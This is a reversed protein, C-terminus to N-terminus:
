NLWNPKMKGKLYYDFWEKTRRSVDIRNKTENISHGENKYLLLQVDKGLRKMANFMYLSQQWNIVYDKDGTILLLPTSINEAHHVPSNRFYLQQDDFFSKGFRWQQTEFRFIDPRYLDFSYTLYMSVADAIGASSVAAKFRPTQTIVYNTEYGGFSHGYLGMRETDLPFVKALFDVTENICKLASNGTEGIEYYIDPEIVFYDDATYERFNIDTVSLDTPAVYKNQKKFKKEYIYVVVPYKVSDKEKYSKPFRIIGGRIESKENYWYFHESKVEAAETDWENGQHLLTEKGAKLDYVYVAPPVNVKEKVYMLFDKFRKIKSYHAKDWVLPIQTGDDKLLDIGEFEHLGATWTVVLDNYPKTVIEFPTISSQQLEHNCNCISYNKEDKKGSTKRAITKSKWDYYWIDQQDNVYFGKDKWQLPASLSQTGTIKYYEHQDSYFKGDTNETIGVGRGKKEDFYYWHNNKYYVLHPFSEYQMLNSRDSSFDSFYSFSNEEFNYKYLSVPPNLMSTDDHQFLEYRYLSGNHDILYGLAKGSQMLSTLIGTKGNIVALQNAYKRHLDVAPPFGKKTGNWITVDAGEKNESELPKVGVVIQNNPLVRVSSFSTDILHQHEANKIAYSGIKHLKNSLRYMHFHTDDVFFLYANKGATDWKVQKLNFPKIESANFKLLSEKKLDKVFFLQDNKTLYLLKELNNDLSYYVLDTITESAGTKINFVTLQKKEENRYVVTSVPEVIEMGTVQQVTDIKKSNFDAVYLERKSYSYFVGKQDTVLMRNDVNKLVLKEHTDTKHVICNSGSETDSFYVTTKGSATVLAPRITEPENAITQGWVPCVMLVLLCILCYIAIKM